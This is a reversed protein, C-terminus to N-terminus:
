IGFIGRVALPSVFYDFKLSLLFCEISNPRLVPLMVVAGCLLRGDAIRIVADVFSKWSDSMLLVNPGPWTEEILGLKRLMSMFGESMGCVAPVPADTKVLLRWM